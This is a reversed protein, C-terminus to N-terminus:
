VCYPVRVRWGRNTLGLFQGALTAAAVQFASGPMYALAEIQVALGHAAAAEDGIRNIVAVFVFQCGLIAAM